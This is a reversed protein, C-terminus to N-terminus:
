APNVAFGDPLDDLEQEVLVVDAIKKYKSVIKQEFEDRFHRRVVFVIKGFGARVADYVSYDMIAEGNPGVVDLQKLGGYRSGAGAALILLTPRM